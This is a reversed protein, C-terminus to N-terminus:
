SAEKMATMAEELMDFILVKPPFRTGTTVLCELTGDQFTFVFHEKDALFAGADHRPHVANARELTALRTSNRVRHVSYFKLGQAYLPHGNLVEDNPHGYVVQHCVKFVIVAVREDATAYCVRLPGRGAIVIPEDASAPQPWEAVIEVVDLTM